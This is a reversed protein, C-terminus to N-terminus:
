FTYLINDFASGLYLPTYGGLTILKNILLFFDTNEASFKLM